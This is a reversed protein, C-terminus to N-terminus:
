RIIKLLNIDPPSCDFRLRVYSKGPSKPIRKQILMSSIPSETSSSISNNQDDPPLQSFEKKRNGSKASSDFRVRKVCKPTLITDGCCSELQSIERSNKKKGSSILSM